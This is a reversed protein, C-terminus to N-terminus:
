AGKIQVRGSGIRAALKDVVKGLKDVKANVGQLAKMTIGNMTVPSLSTGGPAAEDGLVDQVDQAMPGIQTGREQPGIPIGAEAMKRPNYTWQKVPISDIADAAQEPSIDPADKINDKLRKDSTIQPIGYYAGVGRGIVSGLNGWIQAQQNATQQASNAVGNYIAANRAYTGSLGGYGAQMASVGSNQAGLATSSTGAAATGAQVGTQVAANQNSPLNRGLSAADMKRAFGTAEVGLRARNAEGAAASAAGVDQGAMAAMYRASGPNIGNAALARATAAQNAQWASNVDAISREAAAKRREPTDYGQADSVIGQELPIFTKRYYDAYEDSLQGSKRMQALQEEAAEQATKSAADRWPQADAYQQKTFDLQEREIAEARAAAASAADTARNAADQQKSTARDAAVAGIVGSGIQAAAPLWSAVGGAALSPITTMPAVTSAGGAISAVPAIAGGVGGASLTGIGGAAEAGTTAGALGSYLGSSGVAGSGTGAAAGAGAGLGAYLGVGGLAALGALFVDTDNTQHSFRQGEIPRGQADIGQVEYSDPNWAFDAAGALKGQGAYINAGSLGDIRMSGRNGTESSADEQSRDYLWRKYEPSTRTMFGAPLAGSGDLMPTQNGYAM